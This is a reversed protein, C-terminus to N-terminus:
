PAFVRGRSGRKTRARSPRRRLLGSAVKKVPRPAISALRRLYRRGIPLPATRIEYTHSPARIQKNMEAFTEAAVSLVIFARLAGNDAPTGKGDKARNLSANLEHHDLWETFENPADVLREELTALGDGDWVKPIESTSLGASNKVWAIGSWEPMLRETLDRHAAARRKDALTMSFAVRVFEPTLLPTTQHVNFGATSWSRMRTVLYTWHLVKSGGIQIAKSRRTLDDVAIDLRRRLEITQWRPNVHQAVARHLAMQLDAEPVTEDDLWSPPLWKSTAIEGCAGGVTPAPLDHPWTLGVPPRLVYTSPFSHDYRVLLQRARQVLGHQAVRVPTFPPTVSHEIDVGRAHRALGVLRAATEAEAPTDARTSFRPILGSSILAAAVLRSDKGGSLGLPLAGPWLTRLSTCARRIGEAALELDAPVETAAAEAVLEDATPTSKTTLDWRGDERLRGDIIRGASVQKVSMVPSSDCLFADSGLYAAWGAPDPRLREGLVYPLMTPRNSIAFVGQSRYTYLKAMGLWDQAIAFHGTSRDFAIMAFPPIVDRLTLQESLLERALALPGRKLQEAPLGVPLGISVAITRDDVAVQQWNWSGPNAAVASLGWGPGDVATQTWQPGGCNALYRSLRVKVGHGNPDFLPGQETFWACTVLMRSISGSDASPRQKAIGM